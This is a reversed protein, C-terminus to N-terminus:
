DLSIECSSGWIKVSDCHKQKHNAGTERATM